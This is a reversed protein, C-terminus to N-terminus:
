VFIPVSALLSDACLGSLPRWFAGLLGRFARSNIGLSDNIYQLTTPPPSSDM